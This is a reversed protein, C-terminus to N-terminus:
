EHHLFDGNMMVTERPHAAPVLNCKSGVGATVASVSRPLAGVLEASPARQGQLTTPSIGGM